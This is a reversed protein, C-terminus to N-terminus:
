EEIEGSVSLLEGVRKACRVVQKSYSVNHEKLFRAAPASIGISGVIM